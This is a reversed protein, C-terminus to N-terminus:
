IDTAGTRAHSATFGGRNPHHQGRRPENVALFVYSHNGGGAAVRYVSGGVRVIRIPDGPGVGQKFIGGGNRHTYSRPPIVLTPPLLAEPDNATVASHVINSELRERPHKGRPAVDLNDNQVRLHVRVRAALSRCARELALVRLHTEVTLRNGSFLLVPFLERVNAHHVLIDVHRLRGASVGVVEILRHQVRVLERTRRNNVDEGGGLGVVPPAVVQGLILDLQGGVRPSERDENIIWALSRFELLAETQRPIGVHLVIPVDVWFGALRHVENGEGARFAAKRFVEILVSIRRRRQDCGALVTKLIPVQKLLEGANLLDRTRFSLQVNFM